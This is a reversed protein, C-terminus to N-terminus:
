SGWKRFEASRFKLCWQDSAVLTDGGGRRGTLQGCNGGGKTTRSHLIKAWPGEVPEPCAGHPTTALAHARRYHGETARPAPKAGRTIVFTGFDFPNGSVATLGFKQWHLRDGALLQAQDASGQYVMTAMLFHQSTEKSVM